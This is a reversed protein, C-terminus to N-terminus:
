CSRLEQEVTVAPPVCDNNDIPVWPTATPAVSGGEGEEEGVHGFAQMPLYM